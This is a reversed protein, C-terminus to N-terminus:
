PGEEGETAPPAGLGPARRHRSGLEGGLLGPDPPNCVLGTFVCQFVGAADLTGELSGEGRLGAYDGTGGAVRWRPSWMPLPIRQTQTPRMM